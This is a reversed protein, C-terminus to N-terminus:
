CNIFFELTRTDTQSLLLQFQCSPPVPEVVFLDDLSILLLVVQINYSNALYKAIILKLEEIVPQLRNVGIRSIMNGLVVLNNSVKLFQIAHLLM